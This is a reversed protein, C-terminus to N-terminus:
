SHFYSFVYLLRHSVLCKDWIFKRYLLTKRERRLNYLFRVNSYHLEYEGKKLKLSQKFDILEPKKRRELELPSEWVVKRSHSDLIWAFYRTEYIQKEFRGPARAVAGSVELQSAQKLKFAAIQVQGIKGSEVRVSNTEAFVFSSVFCILIFSKAAQNM